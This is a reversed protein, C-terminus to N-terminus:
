LFVENLLASFDSGSKLPSTKAKANNFYEYIKLKKYNLLMKAM